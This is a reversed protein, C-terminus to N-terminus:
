KKRTIHEYNAIAHNIMDVANNMSPINSANPYLEKFAYMVDMRDEDSYNDIDKSKIVREQIEKALNIHDSSNLNNLVRARGGKCNCGM